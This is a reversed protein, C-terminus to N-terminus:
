NKKTANGARGKEGDTVRGTDTLEEIGTEDGLPFSTRKTASSRKREEM